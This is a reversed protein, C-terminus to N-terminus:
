LSHVFLMYFTYFTRDSRSRLSLCILRSMSLLRRRKELLVQWTLKLIIVIASNLIQSRVSTLTIRLNLTSSISIAMAKAAIILSDLLLLLPLSAPKNTSAATITTTSSICRHCAMHQRLLAARTLHTLDRTDMNRRNRPQTTGNRWHM